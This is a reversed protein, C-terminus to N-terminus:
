YIVICEVLIDKKLMNELIKHLVIMNLAIKHFSMNEVNKEFHLTQNKLGVIM